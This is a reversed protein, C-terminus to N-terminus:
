KAWMKNLYRRMGLQCSNMKERLIRNISGDEDGYGVDPRRPLLKLLSIWVEMERTVGALESQPIELHEWPQSIEPWDRM